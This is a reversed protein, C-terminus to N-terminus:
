IKEADTNYIQYLSGNYKIIPIVKHLVGGYSIYPITEKIKYNDQITICPYSPTLISLSKESVYLMDDKTTHLIAAISTADRPKVINFTTIEDNGNSDIYNSYYNENVESSDWRYYCRINSINGPNLNTSKVIVSTPSKQDIDTIYPISQEDPVVINDVYKYKVEDETLGFYTFFDPAPIRNYYAAISEDGRYYGNSYNKSTRVDVHTSRDSIKAIGGFGILEAYCCVYKSPVIDNNNYCIIDAALGKTHPGGGSGGVAKDHEPVRYGSNIHISTIGYSFLMELKNILETDILINNSFLKKYTTSYSAFENSRFHTSLQVDTDYNYTKIAM